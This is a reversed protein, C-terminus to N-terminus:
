PNGRAAPKGGNEDRYWRSLRQQTAEVQKDWDTRITIFLLVITQVLTGLLMGVWIGKVHYGLVYGLIAGLPIGILYYTTINVYAVVSQWGAGVAVGSLV